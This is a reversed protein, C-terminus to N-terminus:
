AITKIDSFQMEPNKEQDWSLSFVSPALYVYDGDLDIAINSRNERRLTDRADPDDSRIWRAFECPAPDFGIPLGYEHQLRAALM